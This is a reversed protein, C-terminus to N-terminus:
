IEIYVNYGFVIGVKILKEKVIYMYVIGLICVVIGIINM